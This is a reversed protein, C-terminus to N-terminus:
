PVAPVVARPVRSVLSLAKKRPLNLCALAERFRSQASPSFGVRLGSEEAVGHAAAVLSLLPSTYGPDLKHHGKLVTSLARPFGWKESIVGGVKTHSMGFAEEELAELDREDRVSDAAIRRYQAADRHFLVFAGLNHLLGAVYAEEPFPYQIRIAIERSLQACVLSHEWLDKWFPQASSLYLARLAEPVLISKLQFMGLADVLQGVSMKPRALDTGQLIGAKLVKAALVPDEAVLEAIRPLKYGDGGLVAFLKGPVNPAVPLGSLEPVTRELPAQVHVHVRRLIQRSLLDHLIAATAQEKLPSVHLIQEITRKGDVLALVKAEDSADCPLVSGDELALVVNLDPVLKRVYRREDDRRTAELLVSHTSVPTGEPIAFPLENDDFHFAGEKCSLADDILELAQERVAAHIEEQTIRGSEVLAQGVYGGTPPGIGELAELDDEKLHGLRLLYSGLRRSPDRATAYILDGRHFLFSREDAPTVMTLVGTKRLQHLLSFLEPLRVTTLSGQLSM